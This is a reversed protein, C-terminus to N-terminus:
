AAQVSLRLKLVLPVSTIYTLLVSPPVVHLATVRNLWSGVPMTRSWIVGTIVTPLSLVNCAKQSSLLFSGFLWRHSLQYLELVSPPTVQSVSVFTLM